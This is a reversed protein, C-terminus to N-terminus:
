GRSTVVRARVIVSDRDLVGLRMIDLVTDVPYKSGKEAVREHLDPDFLDSRVLPWIWKVNFHKYLKTLLETVEARADNPFALGVDWLLWAIDVFLGTLLEARVTRCIERANPPASRSHAADAESSSGGDDILPEPQLDDLRGSVRTLDSSRAAAAIVAASSRLAATTARTIAQTANTFFQHAETRLANCRAMHKDTAARDEEMETSKLLRALINATRDLIADVFARHGAIEDRQDEAVALKNIIASLPALERSRNEADVRLLATLEGATDRQQLMHLNLLLEAIQSQQRKIDSELSSFQSTSSGALATIRKSLENLQHAFRPTQSLAEAADEAAARVQQALSDPSIAPQEQKMRSLESLVSALQTAGDDLQRALQGVKQELDSAKKEVAELKQALDDRDRRAFSLGTAAPPPEDDVPEAAVTIRRTIEPSHRAALEPPAVGASAPAKAMLLPHNRRKRKRKAQLLACGGAALAGALAIAAIILQRLLSVELLVTITSTTEGPAPQDWSAIINIVTEGHERALRLGEETLRLEFVVARKPPLDLKGAGLQACQVLGEPAFKVNVQRLQEAGNIIRLQHSVPPGDPQLTWIEATQIKIPARPDSAARGEPSAVVPLAITPTWTPTPAAPAPDPVAFSITLQYEVGEAAIHQPYNQGNITLGLQPILGDASTVSCTAVAISLIISWEGASVSDPFRIQFIHETKISHQLRSQAQRQVLYGSATTDIDRLEVCTSPDADSEIALTLTAEGGSVFPLESRWAGPSTERADRVAILVPVFVPDKVAPSRSPPATALAPVPPASPASSSRTEPVTTATRALGHDDSGTLRRRRGRAYDTTYLLQAGTADPFKQHAPFLFNLQNKNHDTISIMLRPTESTMFIIREVDIPDSLFVRENIPRNIRSISTYIRGTIASDHGIEVSYPLASPDAAEIYIRFRTRGSSLPRHALEDPVHNPAGQADVQQIHVSFTRLQVDAAAAFTPLAALALAFGMLRWGRWM